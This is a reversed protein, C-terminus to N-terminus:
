SQLGLKFLNPCLGSYPMLVYCSALTIGPAMPLKSLSQKQSTSIKTESGFIIEDSVSNIHPLKSQYVATFYRYILICAAALGSILFSYYFIDLILQHGALAGISAMLKVDGAGIGTILRIVFMASFGVFLGILSLMLGALSYLLINSILGICLILTCDFNNIIYGKIDTYCVHILVILSLLVAINM